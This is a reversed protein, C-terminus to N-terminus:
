RVIFFRSPESKDIKFEFRKCFGHGSPHLYQGSKSSRIVREWPGDLSTSTYIRLRSSLPQDILRIYDRHALTGHENYPDHFPVDLNGILSVSLGIVFLLSRM